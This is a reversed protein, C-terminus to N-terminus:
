AYLGDPCYLQDMDLGASEALHEQYDRVIRDVQILAQEDATPNPQSLAMSVATEIAATYGIGYHVALKEIAEVVRDNKISIAM